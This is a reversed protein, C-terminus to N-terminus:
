SMKPMSPLEEFNYPRNRVGCHCGSFHEGYDDFTALEAPSGLNADPVYVLVGPPASLSGGQVLEEKGADIWPIASFERDGAFSPSRDYIGGFLTINGRGNAFNHGFSANFDVIGSDGSETTYASASLSVGDYEDRTIFNIVGAIADSGYVTAAGGTIIEVRDILAQPLNNVDVSSGTGSPALRRGNLLVLTRGAGLGRLNLRATGDGPNNAVRGFDPTLQPMQNLTEELTAQGSFSLVDEELTTIPSPAHFDRRKLRSGTVVLEEVAQDTGEQDTDDAAVNAACALCAASLTWITASYLGAM